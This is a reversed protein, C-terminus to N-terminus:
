TCFIWYGYFNDVHVELFYTLALFCIKFPIKLFVDAISRKKGENRGKGRDSRLRAHLHGAKQSQTRMRQPPTAVPGVQCCRRM